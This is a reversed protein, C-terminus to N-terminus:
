ASSFIEEPDFNNFNDSFEKIYKFNNSKNENKNEEIIIIDNNPVYKHHNNLDENIEDNIEDNISNVNIPYIITTKNNEPIYNHCTNNEPIYDHYINNENPLDNLINNPLNNLTNNPLDNQTPYVTDVQISVVNSVDNTEKINKVIEKNKIYYDISFILVIFLVLILLNQVCDKM